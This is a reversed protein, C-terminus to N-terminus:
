SVRHLMRVSGSEGAHRFPELADDWPGGMALQLERQLQSSDAGARAIATRLRDERILLNGHVDAPAHFIGLTPTYCWRGGDVGRSPEETVEFWLASMRRLASALAAGDGPAGQWGGDARMMRASAPQASWQSQWDASSVEEVAWEVHRCLSRPAAHVYIVGRTVLGSM